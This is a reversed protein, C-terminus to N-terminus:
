FQSAINLETLGEDYTGSPSKNTEGLALLM